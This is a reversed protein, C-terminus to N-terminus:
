GRFVFFIATGSAIFALGLLITELSGDGNDPAFGFLSEIFDLPGPSVLVVALVFWSLLLVVSCLILRNM